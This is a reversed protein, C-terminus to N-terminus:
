TTLLDSNEWINGIIELYPLRSTFAGWVRAFKTVRVLQYSNKTWEVVKNIETESDRCIDGEFIEKGNKDLIGTFQMLEVESLLCSDAWEILHVHGIGSNGWWLGKVLNMGSGEENRWIKHFARFKITRMGM